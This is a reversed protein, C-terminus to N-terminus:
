ATYMAWSYYIEYPLTGPAPATKDIRFVEYGEATLSGLGITRFWVGLSVIGFLFEFTTPPQGLVTPIGVPPTLSFSIVASAIEGDSATITLIAYYVLTEDLAFTSAYNTPLLGNVTGPRVSATITGSGTFTVDFPYETAASGGATKTWETQMGDITPGFKYPDVPGITRRPKRETM